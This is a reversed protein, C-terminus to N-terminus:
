LNAVNANHSVNIGAFGGDALANEEIGPLGV